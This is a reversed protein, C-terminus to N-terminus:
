VPKSIVSFRMGLAFRYHKRKQHRFSSTPKPNYDTDIKFLISHKTTANYASM